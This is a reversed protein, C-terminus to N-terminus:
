DPLTALVARHDSPTTLLRVDSAPQAAHLHDIKRKGRGITGPGDERGQWASVLGALGLGEINGDGATHVRHGAAQLEAILEELRSIERRHRDALVPRDERYGDHLTAGSVLHYSVMAVTTGTQHDAFIGVAALRPPETRLFRDPRDSPGISSLTVSRGEVLDYRDARAGAVNGAGITAVWHYRPASAPVRLRGASPALLVDGTRRLLALRSVYWEQLGVLDPRQDLVLGLATGADRAPLRYLINASAVTTV